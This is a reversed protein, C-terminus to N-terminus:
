SFSKSYWRTIETLQLITSECGHLFVDNKKPDDVESNKQTVLFLKKIIKMVENLANISKDRGVFLPIVMSPFVVIDRLHYYTSIYHKVEM